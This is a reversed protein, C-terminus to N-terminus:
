RSTCSTEQAVLRTSYESVRSHESSTKLKAFRPLNHDLEFPANPPQNLQPETM